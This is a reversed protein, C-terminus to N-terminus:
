WFRPMDPSTFRPRQQLRKPNYIMIVQDVDAVGTLGDELWTDSSVYNIEVGQRTVSRVRNPLRCQGNGTRSAGIECALVGAADNLGEPVAEGSLYTISWTGDSGLPLGMDQAYPWGSGDMRWLYGARLEYSGGPLVDGDITVSTVSAADPLPLRSGSCACGGSCGCGGPGFVQVGTGTSVVSWGGGESGPLVPYSAYLPLQASWCPRVTVPCLGFRRGTAAWLLTTATRLAYAQVAPTYDAWTACLDITPTWGDCPADM